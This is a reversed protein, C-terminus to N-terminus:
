CYSLLECKFLSAAAYSTYDVGILSVSQLGHKAATTKSVYFIWFLSM